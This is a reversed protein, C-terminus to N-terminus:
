ITKIPEFLIGNEQTPHVETHENEGIVIDWPIGNPFAICKNSDFYHECLYCKRKLLTTM